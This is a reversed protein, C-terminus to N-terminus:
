TGGTRPYQYAACWETIEQIFQEYPKAKKRRNCLWCALVLNDLQHAESVWFRHKQPTTHDVVPYEVGISARYGGISKYPGPKDPSGLPILQIGCYHCQWGNDRTAIKVGYRQLFSNKSM